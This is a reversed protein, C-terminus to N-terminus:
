AGFVETIFSFDLDGKGAAVAQGYLERLLPTLILRHSLKEGLEEAYALDKHLGATTFQATYDVHLLKDRKSALVTGGGAGHALVDLAQERSIGAREAIALGEAIGTMIAALVVNNGLKMRTARGPAGLFFLQQGLKELLTRARGYAEEDGSVLITLAGREAPVVSGIVPSELYAGGREAIQAHFRLVDEPHHTTTDIVVKRELTVGLLGEPGELVERVAASDFLNLLVFECETALDAPSAALAAGLDFAREETRNWVILDQGSAILRRAMAHGLHGLGILGVIM